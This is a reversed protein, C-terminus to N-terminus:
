ILLFKFFCINNFKCNFKDIWAGLRFFITVASSFTSHLLTNVKLEFRKFQDINYIYFLDTSFSHCTDKAQEYSLGGEKPVSFSLCHNNEWEIWGPPCYLCDNQDKNWISSSKSCICKSANSCIL